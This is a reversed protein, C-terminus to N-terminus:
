HATETKTEEEEPPETAIVNDVIGAKKAIDMVKVVVGHFTRKDAQIILTTTMDLKRRNEEIMQKLNDFTVTRHNLKMNGDKDIVIFLNQQEPATATEAEPLKVDLGPTVSFVAAVMFFILLLFVCDILPTMPIAQATEERQRRNNM